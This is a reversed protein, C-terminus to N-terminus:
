NMHTQNIKRGITTYKVRPFILLCDLAALVYGAKGSNPQNSYEQQKMGTVSALICGAIVIRGFKFFNLGGAEYPGRVIIANYGAQSGKNGFLILHSKKNTVLIVILLGNSSNYFVQAPIRIM